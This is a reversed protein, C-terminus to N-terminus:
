LPISNEGCDKELIDIHGLIYSGNTKIPILNKMFSQKEMDKVNQFFEEETVVVGKSIEGIIVKDGPIFIKDVNIYTQIEEGTDELLSVDFEDKSKKSLKIKVMEYDPHKKAIEQGAYVMSKLPTFDFKNVIKNCDPHSLAEDYGKIAFFHLPTDENVNRLTSMEKDTLIDQQTFQKIVTQKEYVNTSFSKDWESLQAWEVMETISIIATDDVVNLVTEEENWYFFNNM